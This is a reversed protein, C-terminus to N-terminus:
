DRPSLCEMDKRFEAVTAPFPEPGHTIRRHIFALVLWAAGLLIAALGILGGYGASRWLFLALTGATVLVGAVGLAIAAALWSLLAVARLKEERLEVAFLEM